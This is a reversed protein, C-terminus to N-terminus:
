AANGQFVRGKGLYDSKSFGTILFRSWAHCAQSATNTREFIEGFSAVALLAAV